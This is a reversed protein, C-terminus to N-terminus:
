ESSEQVPVNEPLPEEKAEVIQSVVVSDEVKIEENEVITEIVLSSTGSEELESTEEGAEASETAVSEDAISSETITDEADESGSESVSEDSIIETPDASEEEETEVEDALAGAKAKDSNEEFVAAEGDDAPVDAVNEAQLDSTVEESAAESKGDDVGVSEGGAEVVEGAPGGGAVGGESFRSAESDITEAQASETVSVVDDEALTTEDFVAEPVSTESINESQEESGTEEESGALADLAEDLLVDEDGLKDFIDDFNIEIEELPPPDFLINSTMTDQMMFNKKSRAVVKIWINGYFQLPVTWAYVGDNETGIAITQIEDGPSIMLNQETDLIEYIDILLDSDPGMPNTATWEIDYTFGWSWNPNQGQSPTHLVIEPPGFDFWDAPLNTDYAMSMPTSTAYSRYLSDLESEGLASDYIQVEDITGAWVNAGQYAGIQAAFDTSIPPVNIASDVLAGNKYLKMTGGAVMPDYSVAVHYWTNPSLGTVDEVADFLGSHGSALHYNKFAPAWFAHGSAGSLINNNGNGAGRNVWASKTYSGSSMTLGGASVYQGSGSFRLANTGVYGAVWTPNGVLTGNASGASDIATSTSGDDFKWWHFPTPLTLLPPPPKPNNRSLAHGEQVDAIGPNWLADNYNNWGADPIGWNMQDVIADDPTRLQLMDESNGLGNGINSDLTIKIVDSPVNWYTWTTTTASIVAYGMMPVPVTAPITDCSADDCIEWGSIDIAQNTPNYIEVWENDGEIGREPEVDYYVKHIKLGASKVKNSSTEVDSYGGNEYTPYNHRTQWGFFSFDFMCQDNMATSDIPMTLEFTWEGITTTASSIFNSLKGSYMTTSALTAVLDLDTCLSNTMLNTTSAFYNMPNSYPEMIVAIRKTTTAGPEFNMESMLPAFGFDELIFDIAGATFINQSSNEVDNYFASVIEAGRVNFFAFSFVLAGAIIKKWYEKDKSGVVFVSEVIDGGALGKPSSKKKNNKPRPNM